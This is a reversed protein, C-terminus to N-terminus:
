MFAILSFLVIGIIIIGLCGGKASGTNKIDSSLHKVVNEENIVPEGNEDYDEKTRRKKTFVVDGNPESYCHFPLIFGSLEGAEYLARNNFEAYLQQALTRGKQKCLEEFHLKVDSDQSLPYHSWFVTKEHADHYVEDLLQHVKAMIQGTKIVEKGYRVLKRGETMERLLAIFSEDTLDEQRRYLEKVIEVAVNLNDLYLDPYTREVSSVLYDDTFTPHEERFKAIAAKTATQRKKEEM